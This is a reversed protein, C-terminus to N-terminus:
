HLLGRLSDAPGQNKVLEILRLLHKAASLM